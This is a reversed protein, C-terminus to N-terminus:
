QLPPPHFSKTSSKVNARIADIRAKPPPEVRILPNARKDPKKAFLKGARNEGPPNQGPTGDDCRGRLVCLGRSWVIKRVPWGVWVVPAEGARWLLLRQLWLVTAALAGGAEVLACPAGMGRSCWTLAPGRKEQQGRGERRSEFLPAGRLGGRGRGGAERRLPRSGRTSSLRAASCGGAVM